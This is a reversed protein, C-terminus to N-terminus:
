GINRLKVHTILQEVVLLFYKILKFSSGGGIDLGRNYGHTDLIKRAHAYVEDQFTDDSGIQVNQHYEERSVYGEKICYNKKM